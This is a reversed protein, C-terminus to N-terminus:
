LLGANRFSFCGTQAEVIHDHLRLGLMKAIMALTRTAQIDFHDLEILGSSRGHRILFYPHPTESLYSTISHLHHRFNLNDGIKVLSDSWSGRFDYLDIAFYNTVGNLQIRDFTPNGHDGEPKSNLAIVPEMGILIPM